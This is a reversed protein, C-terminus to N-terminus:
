SAPKEKLHSLDLVPIPCTSPRRSRMALLERAPRHSLGAREHFRLRVLLFSPLFSAFSVAFPQPASDIGHRLSGHFNGLDLHEGERIVSGIWRTDSRSRHTYLQRASFAGFATNSPLVFTGSPFRHCNGWHNECALTENSSRCAWLRSCGESTRKEKRKWKREMARRCHAEEVRQLLVHAVAHRIQRQARLPEREAALVRRGVRGSPAAGGSADGGGGVGVGGRLM